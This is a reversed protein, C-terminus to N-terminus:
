FIISDFLYLIYQPSKTWPSKTRPPNQGQPSKTWPSKTRPIKDPPTKDPPIKDQYWINAIVGWFGERFEDNKRKEVFIDMHGISFHHRPSQHKIFEDWRILGLFVFSILVLIQLEPLSRRGFKDILAKVHTHLHNRETQLTKGWSGIAQM